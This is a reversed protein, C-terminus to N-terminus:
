KNCYIQKWEKALQEPSESEMFARGILVADVQMKKLFAIDEKTTIGSESVFVPRMEEGEKNAYKDINNNLYTVLQKTTELEITFDKLNRNNVGIIKAGLKMARLLEIEDHVELLVDMGLQYSLEYLEKMKDDELIAAILLIADAGIVKAEYVQYTDIIFDKRIMPLTSIKRIEKFYTVNGYFHDEETLCSIADVSQNYQKIREELNLKNNIVGMSPSAKKFEGIISLGEKKLAQYFSYSVRKSEQAMRKIDIESIKEKHEILRKKKDVVITDLIM